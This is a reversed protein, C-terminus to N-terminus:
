ESTADGAGKANSQERRENEARIACWEDYHQENFYDLAYGSLEGSTVSNMMKRAAEVERRLAAIQATCQGCCMGPHESVLENRFALEAECEALRATLASVESWASLLADAADSVCGSTNPHQHSDAPLAAVFRLNNIIRTQEKDRAM